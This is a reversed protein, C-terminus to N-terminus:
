KKIMKSLNKPEKTQFVLWDSAKGTAKSATKMSMKALMKSVKKM